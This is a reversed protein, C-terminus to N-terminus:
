VRSGVQREIQDLDQGNKRGGLSNPFVQSVGLQLRCSGARGRKSSRGVGRAVAAGTAGTFACVLFHWTGCVCVCVSVFVFVFWLAYWNGKRKKEASCRCVFFFDRRGREQTTGAFCFATNKKKERSDDKEEKKQKGALAEMSAFGIPKLVGAPAKMGACGCPKLVGALAEM